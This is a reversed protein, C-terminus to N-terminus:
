VRLRARREYVSRTIPLSLFWAFLLAFAGGAVVSHMRNEHAAATGDLNHTEHLVFPSAPSFWAYWVFLAEWVAVLIWFVSTPIRYFGFVLVFVCCLSLGVAVLLASVHPVATAILNTTLVNGLFVALVLGYWIRYITLM